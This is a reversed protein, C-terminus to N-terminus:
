KSLLYAYLDRIIGLNYTIDIQDIPIDTGIMPSISLPCNQFMLLRFSSSAKFERYYDVPLQRTIYLKYFEEYRRTMTSLDSREKLMVMECIFGLMAQHLELLEDDIGIVSVNYEEGTSLLIYVRNPFSLFANYQGKNLFNVYRGNNCIDFQTYQLPVFRQIYVADNAIRLVESDNINNSTFLQKKAEIIGQKIHMYTAPKGDIVNNDTKEQHQLLGIYRERVDKRVSSLQQYMSLSLLEMSYLVNINAQKIDYEFISTGCIFKQPTIYNDMEYLHRTDNEM